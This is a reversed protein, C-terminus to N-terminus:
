SKSYINFLRHIFDLVFFTAFYNNQVNQFEANQFCVPRYRTGPQVLRLDPEPKQTNKKGSSPFLIWSGFRQLKIVNLLISLIYFFLKVFHLAGDDIVKRVELIIVTKSIFSLV